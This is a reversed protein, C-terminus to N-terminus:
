LNIPYRYTRTNEVYLVPIIVVELSKVMCTSAPTTLFTQRAKENTSMEKRLIKHIRGINFNVKWGFTIKKQINNSRRTDTLIWTILIIVHFTTSTHCM